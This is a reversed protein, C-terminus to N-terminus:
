DLLPGRCIRRPQRRCEKIYNLKLLRDLLVDEHQLIAMFIRRTREHMGTTKKLSAKLDLRLTPLTELWQLGLLFQVYLERLTYVNDDSHQPCEDEEARVYQHGRRTLTYGKM